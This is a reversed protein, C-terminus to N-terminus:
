ADALDGIADVGLPGAGLPRAADEVTAWMYEGLAWGFLMLFRDQTERLVLGPGRAVSGPRVGGVPLSGERVDIATFRAFTERSNPGCLVLAGYCCTVDVAAPPHPGSGGIVLTREPTLPCWWAEGHRSATGPTLEVGPDGHLELKRLHSVDAWGGAERDEGAFAVAVNWGDRTEFRAGAAAAQREMASRAVAVDATLELFGLTV